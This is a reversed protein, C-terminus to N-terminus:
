PRARLDDLLIPITASPGPPGYRSKRVTLRTEYGSIGEAVFLWRQREAHLHMDARSALARGLGRSATPALCLLAYPSRRVSASLTHLLRPAAGTADPCSSADIVILGAGGSRVIDGAMELGLVAPQPWVILLRELDIGRREAYEPDIASAMDIYVSVEGDAQVRALVDLALTTKGSTRQGSLCTVAGRPMGGVGCLRDLAAYGTPIGDAQVAAQELRRLAKTGWRRQVAEVVQQVREHQETLTMTNDSITHLVNTSVGNYFTHDIQRSM